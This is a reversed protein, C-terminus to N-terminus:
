ETVYSRIKENNSDFIYNGDSDLLNSSADITELVQSPPPLSAATEDTGYLIDEIDKIANAMGAQVMRNYDIVLAATPKHGSVEATAASIEWSFLVPEPTESQTQYNKDPPAAMCDYILHLKYGYDNHLADNGVLTKYCLGFHKRGQQGIAVGVAIEYEGLCNAFDDPYTYAEITAKYEEVSILSLYKIDDAYLDTKEGGESSESVATM